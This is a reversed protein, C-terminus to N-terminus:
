CGFFDMLKHNVKGEDTSFAKDWALSKRLSHMARASRTKRPPVNSGPPDAFKAGVQSQDQNSRNEKGDDINEELKGTEKAQQGEATWYLSKLGIQLGPMGAQNFRSIVLDFTLDYPGVPSSLFLLVQLSRVQTMGLYPEQEHQLLFLKQCLNKKVELWPSQLWFM